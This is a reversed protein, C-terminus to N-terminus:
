AESDVIRSRKHCNKDSSRDNSSGAENDHDDRGRKVSVMDMSYESDMIANPEDFLLHIGCKNVVERSGSVDWSITMEMGSAIEDEAFPNPVYM